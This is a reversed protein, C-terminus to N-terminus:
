TGEAGTHGDETGARCLNKRVDQRRDHLPHGCQVGPLRLVIVTAGNRGVGKKIRVLLDYVPPYSGLFLLM